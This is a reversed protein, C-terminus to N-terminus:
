LQGGRMTKLTAEVERWNKRNATLALEVQAAKEYVDARIATLFDRAGKCLAWNYWGEGDEKVYHGVAGGFRVRLAELVAPWKQNISVQLGSDARVHGDADFLGAVWAVHLAEVPQHPSKRNVALQPRFDVADTRKSILWGHIPKGSNATRYISKKTCGVMRRAADWGLNPHSETGRTVTICRARPLWTSLLAASKAKIKLFPLLQQAIRAALDGSVEWVESAQQHEGRAARKSIRGGLKDLIRHLSHAGKLAKSMGIKPLGGNNSSTFWGDGDINGAMWHWFDGDPQM